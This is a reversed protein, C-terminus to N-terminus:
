GGQVVIKRIGRAWVLRELLVIGIIWGWQVLFLPLFEAPTVKGLYVSLPVFYLFRFPLYAAVTQLFPPFFWLPVKGGSFVSILMGNIANFYMSSLLWFCTCGFLFLIHYNLVMSGAMFLVFALFHAGSAPPKIGFLLMCVIFRPILEFVFAAASQGMQEAFAARKYRVPRILETAITGRRIAGGVRHMFNAYLVTESIQAILVYTVMDSLTAGAVAGKGAYLARWIFVQIAVTFIGSLIGFIWNARYTMAQQFQRKVLEIYYRLM